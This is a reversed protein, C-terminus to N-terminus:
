SCSLIYYNCEIEQQGYYIYAFPWEFVVIFKKYILFLLLVKRGCQSYYTTILEYM